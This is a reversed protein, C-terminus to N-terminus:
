DRLMSFMFLWARSQIGELLLTQWYWRIRLLLRHGLFYSSERLRMNPYNGSSSIHSELLRAHPLTGAGAAQPALPLRPSLGQSNQHKWSDPCSMKWARLELLSPSELCWRELGVNTKYILGRFSLSTAWTVWPGATPQHSIYGPLLPCWGMESGQGWHGLREERHPEWAQPILGRGGLLHWGTTLRHSM